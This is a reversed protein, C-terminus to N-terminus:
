NAPPRGGRRDSLHLEVAWPLCCLKGARGTPPAAVGQLAVLNARVERALDPNEIRVKELWPSAENFRGDYMFLLGVFTQLMAHRQDYDDPRPFVKTLQDLLGLVEALGRRSRGEASECCQPLSGRDAIPLSYRFALDYGSDEIYNDSFLPVKPDSFEPLRAALVPEARRASTTGSRRSGTTSKVFDPNALLWVGAAAIGAIILGAM